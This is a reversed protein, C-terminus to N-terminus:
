KQSPASDMKMDTKSITTRKTRGVRLQDIAARRRDGDGHRGATSCSSSRKISLAGACRAESTRAGWRQVGCRLRAEQAAARTTLSDTSPLQCEGAIQLEVHVLEGVFKRLISSEDCSLRERVWSCAPGVEGIRCVM